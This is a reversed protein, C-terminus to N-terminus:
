VGSTGCLIHAIFVCGVGREAQRQIVLTVARIKTAMTALPGEVAVDDVVHGVIIDLWAPLQEHDIDLFSRDPACSTMNWLM